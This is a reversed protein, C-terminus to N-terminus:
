ALNEKQNIALNEEVRQILNIECSPGGKVAKNRRTLEHPPSPQM